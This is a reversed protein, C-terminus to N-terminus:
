SSKHTETYENDEIKYPITFHFASGVNLESEAWIKGGLLEVLKKSIALGLGTGRYLKIKNDEIKRFRDFIIELKDSQM